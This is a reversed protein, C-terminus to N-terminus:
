LADQSVSLIFRQYYEFGTISFAASNKPTITETSSNDLSKKFNVEAPNRDWERYDIFGHLTDGKLTVVYGPRFNSQANSFLPLLFIAFLLKNFHKM